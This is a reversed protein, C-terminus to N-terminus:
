VRDLQVDFTAEEFVRLLILCWAGEIQPLLHRVAEWRWWKEGDVGLAM